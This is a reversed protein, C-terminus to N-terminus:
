SVESRDFTFFREHPSSRSYSITEDGCVEITLQQEAVVQGKTTARVCLVTSTMPNLATITLLKSTDEVTFDAVNSAGSCDSGTTLSYTLQQFCEVASDTSDEM